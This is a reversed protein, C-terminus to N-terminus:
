RGLQIYAEPGFSDAAAPDMAVGEFFVTVGSDASPCKYTWMGVGVPETPDDPNVREDFGEHVRWLYEGEGIGKGATDTLDFVIELNDAFNEYKESVIPMSAVTTEYDTDWKYLSLRVSGKSDAWSPYKAKVSKAYLGEEVSFKMALDQGKRLNINGQDGVAFTQIVNIIGSTGKGPLVPNNVTEVDWGAVIKLVTAVDTLNVSGNGDVDAATEDITVDWNAIKKLMASADSLNIKDNGDANGAIVIVFESKATGDEATLVIKDGATIVDIDVLVVDGRKVAIGNKNVLAALIDGATTGAGIGGALGTYTNAMYGSEATFVVGKARSATDEASVAAAAGVTIVGALLAAMIRNTLKM